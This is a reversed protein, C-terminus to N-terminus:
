LDRRMRVFPRGRRWAPLVLDDVWGQSALWAPGPGDAPCVIWARRCLREVSIAEVARLLHRGVGQRRVAPDVAVAELWADDDTAAVAAGVVSGERRATLALPQGPRPAGADHAAGFQAALWRAAPADLAAGVDLVLELGGRGIVRRGSMTVDVLPHWSRDAREELLQVNTVTVSVRYSTLAALAGPIVDPAADDALTVHPVFPWAPPRALPGLSVAAHVRDLADLDGEVALYVVPTAPWFTAPPGLHLRFPPTSAAAERVADVAQELDAVRVNVPGVLTVHPGVLDLTTHGLARRLGNIEAAADAPIPLVVGVRARPV